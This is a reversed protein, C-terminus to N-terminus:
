PRPGGALARVLRGVEALVGIGTGILALVLLARGAWAWDTSGWELDFPFVVLMRYLVVLSIALLGLQTLSKFWAADYALYVANVAAGALLSLNLVGLVQPFEGTLFPLEQWGPWVNVLYYLALNVLVAVVYGARRGASRGTSVEDQDEGAAAM